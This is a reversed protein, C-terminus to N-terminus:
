ELSFSGNRMHPNYVGSVIKKCFIATFEFCGHVDDCVSALLLERQFLSDSAPTMLTFLKKVYEEHDLRFKAELMRKFRPGNVIWVTDVPVAAVLEGTNRITRAPMIGGKQYAM